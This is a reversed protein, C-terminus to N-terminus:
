FPQSPDKPTKRQFYESRKESEIRDFCRNCRATKVLSQIAPVQWGEEDVDMQFAQKCEICTVTVTM